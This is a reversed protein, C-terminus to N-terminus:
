VPVRDPMRRDRGEAIYRLIDESSVVSKSAKLNARLAKLRRERTSKSVAREGPPKSALPQLADQMYAQLSRNARAARVALQDRVAELVDRVTVQVAMSLM